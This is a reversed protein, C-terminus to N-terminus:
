AHPDKTNPNGSLKSKIAAFFAQINCDTYSNREVKDVRCLVYWTVAVIVAITAVVAPWGQMWEWDDPYINMGLIGSIVTAPLLWGAMRNLANLKAEEKRAHRFQIYNHLEAIDHDLEELHEDLRMQGRALDFLEIGQEQATLERFYIHNQFRLYEEFLREVHARREGDRAQVLTEGVEDSFYLIMARYALLLTAIQFYVTRIHLNLVNNGFWDNKSLLMFSYRTIGYLTDYDAWRDYTARRNLDRLMRPNQCTPDGNDLFIFRYWDGSNEYAYSDAQSDYRTLKVALGDHLLHCLTYMRDDIIPEVKDTQSFFAELLKAIHTPHRYPAQPLEEINAYHSFDEEYREANEFTLVIRHPHFAMRPGALPDHGESLFQPFIRRGFDNIALIDGFGAHRTNKLHFTLIGIGHKLSTKKEDNSTADLHFLRLSIGDLDLTYCKEKAEVIYHGNEGDCYEYYESTKKSDDMEYLIDRVYPHFYVYESYNAPSDIRFNRKVWKTKEPEVSGSFRFPFMFTHYSYLRDNTLLTAIIEEKIEEPTKTDFYAETLGFYGPPNGGYYAQGRDVAEKYHEALKLADPGYYNLSKDNYVILPTKGAMTLRDVLPSFHELTSRVIYLDSRKEVKKADEEAQREQAESVGQARRDEARISAIEEETANMAKLAAIHGKDNAAVLQRHRDLPIDFLEAVQELASPRCWLPGHHDLLIYNPPPKDVHRLEIGYIEGEFPLLDQYAELEADSWSLNRDAYFCAGEKTDALSEIEKCGEQRLLKEIEIMELDHGGLLFLRKKERM